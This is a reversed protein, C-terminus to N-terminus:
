AAKNESVPINSHSVGGKIRQIGKDVGTPEETLTEKSEKAQNLPIVNDNHKAKVEKLPEDFFLVEIEEKETKSAEVNDCVNKIIIALEGRHFTKKDLFDVVNLFEEKFDKLFDKLKRKKEM